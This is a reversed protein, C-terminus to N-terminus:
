LNSGIGSEYLGKNRLLCSDCKGCAVRGGEYCSWTKEFPVKLAKALQFIESKKMNLLPASVQIQNTKPKTGCIVTQNFSDIFEGRCDPYGSYDVSNAGIYVTDAGIAEAYSVGFSLFIINRAPVYTSPIVKGVHSVGLMRPLKMKKDLLSSSSHPFSFKIKKYEVGLTEAIDLACKIEKRHRQGYDFILCHPKYGRSKALYLCTTSDLGGSLLVVIKKDNRMKISGTKACWLLKVFVRNGAIVQRPM